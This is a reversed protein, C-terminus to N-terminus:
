GSAKKSAPRSRSASSAISGVTASSALMRVFQGTDGLKITGYQITLPEGKYKGHARGIVKGSDRTAILNRIIGRAREAEGPNLTRLYHQSLKAKM